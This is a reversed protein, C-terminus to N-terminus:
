ASDCGSDEVQRDEGDVVVHGNAGDQFNDDGEDDGLKETNEGGEAVTEDEAIAVQSQVHYEVYRSIM